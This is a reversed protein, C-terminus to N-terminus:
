RTKETASQRRRFHEAVLGAFGVVLPLSLLFAFSPEINLLWRVLEAITEGVQSVIGVNTM